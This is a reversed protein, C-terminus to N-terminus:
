IMFMISFGQCFAWTNYGLALFVFDMIEVQATIDPKLIKEETSGM